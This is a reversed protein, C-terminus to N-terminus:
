SGPRKTKKIIAGIYIKYYDEYYMPAKRAFLIRCDDNGTPMDLAEDVDEKRAYLVTEKTRPRM